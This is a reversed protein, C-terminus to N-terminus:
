YNANSDILKEYAWLLRSANNEHEIEIFIIKNDDSVIKLDSFGGKKGSNGEPILRLEDKIESNYKKVVMYTAVNFLFTWSPFTLKDLDKGKDSIIVEKLLNNVIIRYNEDFFNIDM